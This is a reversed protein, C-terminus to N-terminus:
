LSGTRRGQTAVTTLAIRVGWWALVHAHQLPAPRSIGPAWKLLGPTKRRANTRHVLRLRPRQHLRLSRIGEPPLLRRSQSPIGPRRATAGGIPDTLRACDSPHALRPWICSTHGPNQLARFGSDDRQGDGVDEIPRSAPNTSWQGLPLSTRRPAPRRWTASTRSWRRWPVASFGSACPRRGTWRSARIWPLLM